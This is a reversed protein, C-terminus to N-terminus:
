PSDEAAQLLRSRARGSSLQRRLRRDALRPSIVGGWCITGLSAAFGAVVVSLLAVPLYQIQWCIYFLAMAVGGLVSGATLHRKGARSVALYIDIACPECCGDPPFVHEACLPQECRPCASGAPEKCAGCLERFEQSRFVVHVGHWPLAPAALLGYRM